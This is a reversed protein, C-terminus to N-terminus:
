FPVDEYNKEKRKYKYQNEALTISEINNKHYGHVYCWEDPCDPGCEKIRSITFKKAGRGKKRMYDTDKVFFRFEELTVTNIKKRRRSNYHWQEWTFRIPDAAQKRKEHCSHCINSHKHKKRKMCFPTICLGNIKKRKQADTLEM